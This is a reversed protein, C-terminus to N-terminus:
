GRPPGSEAARTLMFALSSTVVVLASRMGAHSSVQRPLCVGVVAGGLYGLYNATALGAALESSTSAQAPVLPLVPTHVFRGSGYGGGVGGCEQRVPRM